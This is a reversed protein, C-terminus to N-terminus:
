WAWKQDKPLEKQEANAEIIFDSIQRLCKADYFSAECEYIYSRWAGHWYIIGPTDDKNRTNNVQFIKTRGTKSVGTQIIEIYPSHKQNLGM